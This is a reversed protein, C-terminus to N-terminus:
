KYNTYIGQLIQIRFMMMLDFPPRGGKTADKDSDIFAQNLVPSFLEWDIHKNLKMLLDKLKTLRELLFHEPKFVIQDPANTQLTNSM